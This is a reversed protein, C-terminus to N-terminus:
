RLPILVITNGRRVNLVLAAAGTSVERLRKVNNVQARNAGIIVDNARLGFGAAPSGATVARVLVGNDGTTDALTAGELGRHISATDTTTAAAGQAAPEDSGADAITATVKMPKGDRLVGIDVKDGVRLMGIINRLENHSKVAQGNVTTVVDSARLGAKDAASGPVVQTVLAGEADRLGLAQAVDATIPRISVGLVGRRVAGYRILQDMVNRAM